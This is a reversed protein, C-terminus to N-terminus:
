LQLLGPYPELCPYGWSSKTWSLPFLELQVVLHTHPPPLSEEAKAIRRVPRLILNVHSLKIPSILGLKTLVPTGRVHSPWFSWMWPINLSLFTLHPRYTMESSFSKWLVCTHAWDHGVRQSGTPPLGGPEETRPSEGPLVVPTPQWVPRRPIM